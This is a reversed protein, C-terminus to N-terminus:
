ENVQTGDNQYARQEPWHQKPSPLPKRAVMNEGREGLKIEFQEKM